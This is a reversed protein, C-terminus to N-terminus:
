LSQITKKLLESLDHPDIRYDRSIWTHIEPNKWDFIDADPPLEGETPVIVVQYDLDLVECLSKLGLHRTTDVSFQSEFVLVKTGPRCFLVNSLDSGHGGVVVRAARFLRAQEPAPLSGCDVVQLGAETLIPEIAEFNHIRRRPAAIAQRSAFVGVTEPEDFVNWVSLLHDAFAHITEPFLKNQDLFSVIYAEDLLYDRGPDVACFREDPINFTDLVARYPGELMPPEVIFRVDPAAWLDPRLRRLLLLRPCWNFLWHYWNTSGGIVVHRGPMRLPESTLRFRDGDIAFRNGFLTAVGTYSQNIFLRQRRTDITVFMSTLLVAEAEFGVLEWRRWGFDPWLQLFEAPVSRAGRYERYVADDRVIQGEFSQQAQM